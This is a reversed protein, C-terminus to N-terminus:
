SARGFNKRTVEPLDRPAYMRPLELVLTMTCNSRLLVECGRTNTFPMPHRGHNTLDRANLLLKPAVSTPQPPSRRTPTLLPLVEVNRLWTQCQPLLLARLPFCHRACLPRRARPVHLGLTRRVHTAHVEFAIHGLGLARLVPRRRAARLRWACTTARLRALSHPRRKRARFDGASSAYRARATLRRQRVARRPIKEATSAHSQLINPKVLLVSRRTRQRCAMRKSLTQCALLRVNPPGRTSPIARCFRRMSNSSRHMSCLHIRQAMRKVSAQHQPAQVILHLPVRVSLLRQLNRQACLGQVDNEVRSAFHSCLRAQSDSLLLTRHSGAPPQKRSGLFTKKACM